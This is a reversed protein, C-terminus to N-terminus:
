SISMLNRRLRVSFRISIIVNEDRVSELRDNKEIGDHMDKQGKNKRKSKFVLRDTPM